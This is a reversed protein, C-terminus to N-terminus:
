YHNVSMNWTSCKRKIYNLYKDEQRRIEKKENKTEDNFGSLHLFGHILVRNLEERLSVRYRKANKKVQKLSIYVDGTLECENESLDFTLIDTNYHHGKFESNMTIQEISSIFNYNLCVKRNGCRKNIYRSLIKKNILEIVDKKYRSKTFNFEIMNSSYINEQIM